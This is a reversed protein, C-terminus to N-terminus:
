KYWWFDCKVFFLQKCYCYCYNKADCIYLIRFKIPISHSYTGRKLHPQRAHLQTVPLEFTIVTVMPSTHSHQSCWLLLSFSFKRKAANIVVSLSLSARMKYTYTYLHIERERERKRPRSPAFKRQQQLSYRFPSTPLLNFFRWVPPPAEDACVYRRKNAARTCGGWEREGREKKM